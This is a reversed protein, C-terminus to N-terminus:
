LHRPVQRSATRYCRLSWISALLILLVLLITGWNSLASVIILLGRDTIRLVGISEQTIGGFIVDRGSATATIGQTNLCSNGNIADALNNVVTEVSQGLATTITVTCTSTPGAIDVSVAGGTPDGNNTFKITGPPCVYGGATLICNYCYESEVRSETDALQNYVRQWLWWRIRLKRWILNITFEIKRGRVVERINSSSCAGTSSLLPQGDLPWPMTFPTYISASNLLVRTEEYNSNGNTTPYKIGYYGCAGPDQPAIDCEANHDSASQLFSYVRPCVGRPCPPTNPWGYRNGPDLSGSLVRLVPQLMGTPSLKAIAGAASRAPFIRGPEVNQDIYYGIARSTKIGMDYLEVPIFSVDPIFGSPWAGSDNPNGDMSNINLVGDDYGSQLIYKIFWLKSPHGGAVTVTSVPSRAVYPGWRRQSVPPILDVLVSNAAKAMNQSFETLNDCTFPNVLGFSLNKLMARTLNCLWGLDAIVVSAAGTAAVAPPALESGSIAGHLAVHGKCYDAIHKARL